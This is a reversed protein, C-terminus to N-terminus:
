DLKALPGLGLVTTGGLPYADLLEHLHDLSLSQLTELDDSVSRYERRYAWNLGLPSLRGMPREAALVVRTLVKSRAQEFEEPTPGNRNFDDYLTDIREINERAVEPQCCLYTTWSGAGDFDSYTLDASEARGTEILDWYLRGAGEDGVIISAIEAAYRLPSQASPAPAMEMVHEQHLHERANWCQSPEPHPESLDRGPTGREWSACFRKALQMLHDWEFNGAAALILNGAGYRAHHYAKMQEPTLATISAPSGLVSQGLPHGAFHRAMAQEYLAFAPMDEYMGIEELIVRKEMEFDSERLSPRMMACLLEFTRDFYEPLIAAYYFTVEESTSANYSAGVEDFVRNVDEASFHEDGKFAMHELFHSVGAVEPREDRSGTKVFFGLAASQAQPNTEAVIELGNEFVNHHFQM